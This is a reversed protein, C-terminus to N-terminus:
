PRWHSIFQICVMCSVPNGPFRLMKHIGANSLAFAEMRYRILRGVSYFSSKNEPQKKREKEKEKERERERQRCMEQRGQSGRRRGGMREIEILIEM